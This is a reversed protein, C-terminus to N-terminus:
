DVFRSVLSAAEDTVAFPPPRHAAETEGARRDDPFTEDLHLNDTAAQADVTMEAPSSADDYAIRRYTM